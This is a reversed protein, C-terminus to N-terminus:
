RSIGFGYPQIKSNLISSGNTDIVVLTDAYNIVVGKPNKFPFKTYFPLNTSM